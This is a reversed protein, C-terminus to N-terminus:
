HCGRSAIAAGVLGVVTALVGYWGSIHAARVDAHSAPDAEPELHNVVVSVPAVLQVAPVVPIAAPLAAPELRQLATEPEPPRKPELEDRRRKMRADLEDWRRKMRADYDSIVLGLESEFFAIGKNLDEAKEASFSAQLFDGMSTLRLTFVDTFTIRAGSLSHRASLMADSREFECLGDALEEHGDQSTGDPLDTIVHVNLKLRKRGFSSRAEELVSRIRGAPWSRPVYNSNRSFGM